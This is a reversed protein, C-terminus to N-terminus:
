AHTPPSFPIFDHSKAVVQGDFQSGSFGALRVPSTAQFTAGTGARLRAVTTAVSPTADYSTIMSIAGLPKGHPSQLFEVWAFSGRKRTVTKGQAGFWTADPPTVRVAILFLGAQLTVSAKLAPANVDNNPIASLETPGAAAVAAACILGFAATLLLTLKRM